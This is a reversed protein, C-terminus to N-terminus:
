QTSTPVPFFGTKKQTVYAWIFTGLPILFFGVTMLYSISPYVDITANFVKTVIITGVMPFVSECTALFSFVIGLEDKDAIKSIGSRIALPVLGSLHGCANGIYYIPVGYHAFAIVANKAMMSSIGLLGLGYDTVKFYKILIATCITLVVMQSVSFITNVTNYTTPDWNYLHHAYVYGISGFSEYTLVVVCMSCFFLLLLIRQNKERARVSAKWGKLLSECVFFDRIKYSWPVSVDLGTTEEVVIVIWPICAIHLISGILYIYFYGYYRYVLGGTLGGLAMGTGFAIEITTYKITRSKPTSVESAHSYVLALVCIFGGFIESPIKSLVLYYLESDEFLTCLIYCMDSILIGGFALILPLKRGYKDSWPAIFIMSVAGILSLLNSYLSYNNALIEVNDKEAPYNSLNKCIERSYNLHYLCGKDMMLNTLCSINLLFAFTFLFMVPEITLTRLFRCIRTCKNPKEDGAGLLPVDDDDMSGYQINGEENKLPTRTQVKLSSKEQVDIIKAAKELDHKDM